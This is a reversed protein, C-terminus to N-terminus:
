DDTQWQLPGPEIGSSDMHSKHHVFHGHALTQECYKPKERDSWEVLAEYGDEYAHQELWFFLPTSGPFRGFVLSMKSIPHM